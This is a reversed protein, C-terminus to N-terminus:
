RTASMSRVTAIDPNRCVCSSASVSHPSRVLKILYKELRCQQDGKKQVAFPSKTNLLRIIRRRQACSEGKKTAEVGEQLVGLAM